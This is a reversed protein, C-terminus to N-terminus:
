GELIGLGLPIVQRSEPKGCWVRFEIPVEPFTNSSRGAGSPGGGDNKLVELFKVDDRQSNLDPFVHLLILVLVASNLLVLEM